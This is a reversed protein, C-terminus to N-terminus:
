RTPSTMQSRAWELNERVTERTRELPRVQLRSRGVLAAIIGLVAFVGAVVLAIVAPSWNPALWIVLAGILAVVATYILLLGAGLAAAGVAAQTADRRAEERVLDAQRDVLTSLNSVLRRVLEGTNMSRVTEAQM